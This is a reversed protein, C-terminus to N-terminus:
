GPGASQELSARLLAVTEDTSPAARSSASQPPYALYRYYALAYTTGELAGAAVVETGPGSRAPMVAAWADEGVPIPGVTVTLNAPTIDTTHSILEAARPGVTLQLSLDDGNSTARYSCYLTDATNGTGQSATLTLQDGRFATPLTAVVDEPPLCSVGLPVPTPTPGSGRCALVISGALVPVALWRRHRQWRASTGHLAPRRTRPMDPRLTARAGIAESRPRRSDRAISKVEWRPWRTLRGIVM